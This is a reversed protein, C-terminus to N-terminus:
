FAVNKYWWTKLLSSNFRYVKPEDNNNIYGDYELANLIHRFGIEMDYQVALDNVQTSTITGYESIYNLLAKTFTYEQGTYCRRLRTHWNTFYNRHEIAHLFAKDIENETIKAPRGPFKLKDIEDVILQIYFPILWEIKKLMYELQEEEFIYGSGEIIKGTLAKAEQKSLPPIPFSYLDNITGSANLSEVINELGISGALIFQIKGKMDPMM